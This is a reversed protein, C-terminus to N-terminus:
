QWYKQYYRRELLRISGSDVSGNILKFKVLDYKYMIKRRATFKFSQSRDKTIIEYEWLGTNNNYVRKTIVGQYSQMLGNNNSGQVAMNGGNGLGGRVNQAKYAKVSKIINNMSDTFAAVIVKGQPSKSYAGVSASGTSFGLGGM